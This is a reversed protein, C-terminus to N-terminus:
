SIKCTAVDLTYSWYYLGLVIDRSSVIGEFFVRRERALASSRIIKSPDPSSFTFYETM